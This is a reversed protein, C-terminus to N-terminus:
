IPHRGTSGRPRVHPDNTGIRIASKNTPPTIFTSQFASVSSRNTMSQDKVDFAAPIAADGEISKVHRECDLRRTHRAVVPREAARAPPILREGRCTQRCCSVWAPAETNKARAVQVLHSTPHLASQSTIVVVITKKRDESQIQTSPSSAFPPRCQGLNTPSRKSVM